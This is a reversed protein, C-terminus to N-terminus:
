HQWHLTPYAGPMLNWVTTDWGSYTNPTKMEATSKGQGGASVTQQTTDKDFFSAVADGREGAIMGGSDKITHVQGSAYSHNVQGADQIGVLGGNNQLTGSITADSYSNNIQGNRQRGVIGGLYHKGMVTGGAYSVAIVSAGHQAGVLGGVDTLSDVSVVASSRYVSTADYISGVLGGGYYGNGLFLTGTVHVNEIRTTGRATGSLGGTHHYGTIDIDTLHINRMTADQTTSFLGVGKTEPQTITLHHIGYGGGNFTGRFSGKTKGIPDFDLGSLDIDAVQVYNDKLSGGATMEWETGEGWTRTTETGIAQLDAASAVVRYGAEVFAAIDESVYPLQTHYVDHGYTIRGSKTQIGTKHFVNGDYVGGVAVVYDTPVHATTTVAKQFEEGDLQYLAGGKGAVEYVLFDDYYSTGIVDNQHESLQRAVADELIKSDHVMATVKADKTYGVFRPAALMVLIGIVAMVVLLEILTFARTNRQKHKM